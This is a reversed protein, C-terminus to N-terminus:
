FYYQEPSGVVKKLLMQIIAKLTVCYNGNERRSM